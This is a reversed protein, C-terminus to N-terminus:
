LSLDLKSHLASGWTFRFAPRGRARTRRLGRTAGAAGGCQARTNASGEQCPADPRTPAHCPPPAREKPPGPPLAPRSASPAARGAAPARCSAGAGPDGGAEARSQARASAAGESLRLRAQQAGCEATGGAGPGRCPLPPGPRPGQVSASGCVQGGFVLASDRTCGARAHQLGMCGNQPCGFHPQLASAECVGVGGSSCPGGSHARAGGVGPTTVRVVQAQAGAAAGLGCANVSTLHNSPQSSSGGTNGLHGDAWGPNSGWATGCCLGPRPWWTKIEWRAAVTM